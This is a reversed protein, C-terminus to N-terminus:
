EKQQRELPFFLRRSSKADFLEPKGTQPDVRGYGIRQGQRDFVEIRRQEKEISWHGTRRGQADYWDIREGGFSPTLFASTLLLLSMGFLQILVGRLVTGIKQSVPKDVKRRGM